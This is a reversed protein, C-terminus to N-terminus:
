KILRFAGNIVGLIICVIVALQFLNNDIDMNSFAAYFPDLFMNFLNLAM